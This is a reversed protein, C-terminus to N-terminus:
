HSKYIEELRKELEKFAAKLKAESPEKRIPLVITPVQSNFFGALSIKLNKLINESPVISYGRIVKHGKDVELALEGSVFYDKDGHSGFKIIPQRRPGGM